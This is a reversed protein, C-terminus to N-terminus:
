EKRVLGFPPDENVYAGISWCSGLLSRGFKVDGDTVYVWKQSETVYQADVHHMRGSNWGFLGTGEFWSHERIPEDTYESPSLGTIEYVQVKDGYQDVNNQLFLIVGSETVIPRGAPRGAWTRDTVIPNHEHPRWDDTELETSYYAYLTDNSGAGVIIWWYDRYKFVIPDLPGYEPSIMDTVPVWRHPFPDARFLTVSRDAPDGGQGPAMYVTGGSEFVFPFALHRKWKLVVGDYQWDNGGNESTAHGIVATPERHGNQIEFFLHWTEDSIFLFPDATFSVYGYDTVDRATIIPNGSSSLTESLEPTAGYRGGSLHRNASLVITSLRSRAAPLLNKLKRVM